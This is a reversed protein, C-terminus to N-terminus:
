TESQRIHLMENVESQLALPVNCLFAGWYFNILSPCLNRGDHFQCLNYIISTM